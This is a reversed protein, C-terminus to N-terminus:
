SLDVYHLRIRDLPVAGHRATGTASPCTPDTAPTRSALFGAAVASCSGVAAWRGITLQLHRAEVDALQQWCSPQGSNGSGSSCRCFRPWASTTKGGPLPDLGYYVAPIYLTCAIAALITARFVQGRHPDLAAPLGSLPLAWLMAAPVYEMM